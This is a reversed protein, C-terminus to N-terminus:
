PIVRVQRQMHGGVDLLDPYDTVRLVTEIAIGEALMAKATELKAKRAGEVQGKRLGEAEGEARGKSLGEELIERYIPSEIMLERRKKGLAQALKRDHMGTYIDLVTLLDWKEENPLASTELIRRDIEDVRALGGRMLVVYPLLHVDATLFDAAELEWFKVLRFRYTLNEESVFDKAAPHPRYLFLVPEVPLSQRLRHRLEYELLRFPLRPDWNTQFEVLVLSQSGDNLTVIHASDSHRVSVTEAPSERVEESQSIPLGLLRSLIPKAGLRLLRKSVADYEMNDNYFARTVHM